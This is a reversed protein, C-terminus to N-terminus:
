GTVEGALSRLWGEIKAYEGEQSTRVPRGLPLSISESKDFATLTLELNELSYARLLPMVEFAMKRALAGCWEDVDRGTPDVMFYTHGVRRHAPLVDTLKDHLRGFAEVAVRGVSERSHDAYYAQIAERSPMVDIFRWRRRMSADMAEESGGTMEMTGVFWLSEPLSFADQRSDGGDLREGSVGALRVKWGAREAGPRGSSRKGADLLMGIPGLAAAFDCHQVEDVILVTPGSGKRERERAVDALELVMRKVLEGTQGGPAFGPELHVLDWVVPRHVAAGYAESVTGYREVLQTWQCNGLEADGGGLQAGVVERALWTKGTGVPGQLIVAGTEELHKTVTAADM